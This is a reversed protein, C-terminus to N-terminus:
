IYKFKARKEIINIKLRFFINVSLSRFLTPLKCNKENESISKNNDKAPTGGVIPKTALDKINIKKKKFFFM